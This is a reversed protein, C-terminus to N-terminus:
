CRCCCRGRRNRSTPDMYRSLRGALDTLLSPLLLIASRTVSIPVRECVAPSSNTPQTQSQSPKFTSPRQDDRQNGQRSVLPRDQSHISALMKEVHTCQPDARFSSGPSESKKATSSPLSQSICVIKPLHSFFIQRHSTTPFSLSIHVSSTYVFHGQRGAQMSVQRVKMTDDSTTHFLLSFDWCVRIGRLGNSFDSDHVARVGASHKQCGFPFPFLDKM